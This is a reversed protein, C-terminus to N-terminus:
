ELQKVQELPSMHELDGPTIFNADTSDVFRSWLNEIGAVQVEDTTDQARTWADRLGLAALHMEEESVEPVGVAALTTAEAMLADMEEDRVGREILYAALLPKLEVEAAAAITAPDEPVEAAAPVTPRVPEPRADAWEAVTQEPGAELALTQRWDDHRTLHFRPDHTDDYCRFVFESCIMMDTGNGHDLLANILRAAFDCATRVVARLIRSRINVRRTVALVALLVIQQYAYPTDNHLYDNALAVVPALDSEHPVRKVRTFNNGTLAEAIVRSRLGDGAAEIMTARDIALAAHNVDASDFLRITKSVLSRGSFLLVDGGRFEFGEETGGM